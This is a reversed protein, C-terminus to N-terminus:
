ELTERDLLRPPACVECFFDGTRPDSYVEGCDRGCRDCDFFTPDDLRKIGYKAAWWAVFEEPTEGSAIACALPEQDGCADGWDIGYSPKMLADVCKRFTQLDM